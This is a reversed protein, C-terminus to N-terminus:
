WGVMIYKIPADDPIMTQEIKKTTTVLLDGPLHKKDITFYANSENVFIVAAGIINDIRKITYNDSIDKFTSNLSVGEATTYRDDMIQINDVLSSDTANKPMIRLLLSSKTKDYVKVISGTNVFESRGETNVVSDGAFVKELMRIPTSKKLPGVQESTILFPDDQTCSLLSTVSLLLLLYKKIM